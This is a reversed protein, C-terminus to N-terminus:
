VWSCFGKFHIKFVLCAKVCQSRQHWSILIQLKTKILNCVVWLGPDTAKQSSGGQKCSSLFLIKVIYRSLEEKNEWSWGVGTSMYKYQTYHWCVDFTGILILAERLWGAHMKNKVEAASMTALCCWHRWEYWWSELLM